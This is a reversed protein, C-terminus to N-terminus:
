PQTVELTVVPPHAYDNWLGSILPVDPKGDAVVFRYRSVYPKGPEISWDGAQSPAFNFFPETPHVRMPQPSRFNDPHSLIAIGAWKGDITGGMHCWHARTAHAKIRDTEGNSPTFLCNESGDWQTHGRVGLGGYRYEPLILPSDTACEQISELDLVHFRKMGFGVSFLRVTWTERLAVIEPSISMDVFQHQSTFGSHVPGNWTSQLRVFEVRGSKDGMNWFDPHRGQFGTKTWPFWIGHHHTHAKDPYDGSIVVGSPTRVPHIYGSRAYVPAIDDRPLIPKYIYEVPSHQNGGSLVLRNGLDELLTANIVNEAPIRTVQTSYKQGSKLQHFIVTAEGNLVRVIESGSHSAYVFDGTQESPIPWDFDVITQHRDFEGADVHMTWEQGSSYTFPSLAIIVPLFIFRHLFKM